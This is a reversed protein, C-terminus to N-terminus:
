SKNRFYPLIKVIEYIENAIKRREEDEIDLNYIKRGKEIIKQCEWIDLIKKDEYEKAKEKKSM